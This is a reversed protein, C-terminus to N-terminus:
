KTEEYAHVQLKAPSLDNTRRLFEEYPVFEVVLGCDYASALELLTTLTYGAVTCSELRGIDGQPKGMRRGLEAQSWGRQKRLEKIQLAVKARTKEELYADRMEKENLESAFSKSIELMSRRFEGM